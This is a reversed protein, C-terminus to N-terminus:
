HELLPSFTEKAELKDLGDSFANFLLRLIMYVHEACVFGLLEGRQSDVM